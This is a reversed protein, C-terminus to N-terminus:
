QSIENKLQNSFNTIKNEIKKAETDLKLLRAVVIGSQALKYTLFAAGLFIALLVLITVSAITWERIKNLPSYKLVNGGGTLRIDTSTKSSPKKFFLMSLYNTGYRIGMTFVGEKALRRGSAYIPLSYTFKVKGIKNVRMAIDADEGYFEISTDYGGVAELASRRVVYNGGQLMAGVGFVFRVVLYTLYSIPYFINKVLFNIGRPLDYYIFPGSLALLKPDRSFEGFVKRIWGPALMTDADVNAILDGTSALFGARRAWVIGKRPEDVVKVGPYKQAIEKTRDSSANNVVIIEADYNTGRLEKLISELCKGIYAEENHAPIVFSLKM